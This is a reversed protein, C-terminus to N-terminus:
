EIKVVEVVPIFAFDEALRPPLVSRKWKHDFTFRLDITFGAESRKVVVRPEFQMELGNLRGSEALPDLWCRNEADVRLAEVSVTRKRGLPFDVLRISSELYDESIRAHPM